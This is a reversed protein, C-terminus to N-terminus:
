KGKKIQKFYKAEAKLLAEKLTQEKVKESLDASKSM